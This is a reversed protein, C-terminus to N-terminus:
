LEKGIIEALASILPELSQEPQFRHPESIWSVCPTSICWPVSSRCLRLEERIAILSSSEDIYGAVDIRDAQHFLARIWSVLFRLIVCPEFSFLGEGKIGAENM